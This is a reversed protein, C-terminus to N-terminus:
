EKTKEPTLFVIRKPKVGYREALTKVVLDPDTEVLGAGDCAQIAEYVEAALEEATQPLGARTM